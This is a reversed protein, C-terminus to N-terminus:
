DQRDTHILTFVYRIGPDPQSRVAVL